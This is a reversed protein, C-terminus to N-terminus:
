MLWCKDNNWLHNSKYKAEDFKRKCKCPIYKRFTTSEDFRTIM